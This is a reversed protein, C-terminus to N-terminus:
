AHPSRRQRWYSQGVLWHAIRFIAHDSQRAALSVYTRARPGSSHWHPYRRFYPSAVTFHPHILSVPLSTQWRVFPLSIQDRGSEEAVLRWWLEMAEEMRDDGHRRLLISNGTLCGPRDPFGAKRYLAVESELAARDAGRNAAVVAAVEEAVTLRVPHEHVALAADCPLAQEFFPTLDSLIQINADVYLSLTQEPFLKTAFIKHWRNIRGGTLHVSQEALPRSQWGRATHQPRDTFVVFDVGPTPELPPLVRDYGDTVCTYVVRRM